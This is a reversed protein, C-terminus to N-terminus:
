AILGGNTLLVGEVDKDLGIETGDLKIYLRNPNGLANTLIFTTCGNKTAATKVIDVLVELQKEM